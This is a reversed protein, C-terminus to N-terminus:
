ETPPVIVIDRNSIDVGNIQIEPTVICGLSDYTANNDITKSEFSFYGVLFILLLIVEVIIIIKYIKKM